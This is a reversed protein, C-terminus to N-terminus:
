VFSCKREPEQNFWVKYDVCFQQISSVISQHSAKNIDDVHESSFVTKNKRWVRKLIKARTNHASNFYVVEERM